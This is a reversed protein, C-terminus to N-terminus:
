TLSCFSQFLIFLYFYIFIIVINLFEVRIWGAGLIKPFNISRIFLVFDLEARAGRM